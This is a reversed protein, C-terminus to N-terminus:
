RGKWEPKRKEKFARPGEVYDESHRCLMCIANSLAIEKPDPAAIYRSIEKIKKVLFPSLTNVEDAYKEAQAILDRPSVVKNVYGSRYADQASINHGLM